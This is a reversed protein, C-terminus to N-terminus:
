DNCITSLNRIDGVGAYGMLTLLPREGVGYVSLGGVARMLIFRMISQESGLVIVPTVDNVGIVPPTKQGRGGRGM